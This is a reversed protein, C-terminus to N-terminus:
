ILSLFYLSKFIIKFPLFERNNAISASTILVDPMVLIRLNKCFFNIKLNVLKYNHHHYIKQLFVYSIFSHFRTKSM